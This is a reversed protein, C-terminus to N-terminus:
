VVFLKLKVPIAEIVIVAIVFQSTSFVGFYVLPTIQLIIFLAYDFDQLRDSDLLLVTFDLDQLSEVTAWTNYLKYINKAVWDALCWRENEFM